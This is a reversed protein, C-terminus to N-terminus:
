ERKGEPKVKRRKKGLKKAQFNGIKGGVFKLTANQAKVFGREASNFEPFSFGGGRPGDVPKKGRKECLEL